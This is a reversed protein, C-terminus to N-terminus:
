TSAKWSEQIKEKSTEFLSLDILLDLRIKTPKVITSYLEEVKSASSHKYEKDM